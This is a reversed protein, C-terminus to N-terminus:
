RTVVLECRDDGEHMCTPETVEVQEDYYDGVGALLGKALSCLERESAYTVKVTEDGVWEASLAPPTYTSLQKGRLAEHIYTEVNAILELGTWDEEVHVGYTEVLPPVLFRGFADLLDPPDEGTAEAAADVLNLADADEYETVPVYVKGGLGAEDQIARWAERDYEATVFDKLGKLVIGHM